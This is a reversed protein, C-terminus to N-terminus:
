SQATQIMDVLCRKVARKGLRQSRCKGSRGKWVNDSGQPLSLAARNSDPVGFGSDECAQHSRKRHYNAVAGTSSWHVSESIM